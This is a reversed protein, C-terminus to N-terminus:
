WVHVHQRREHDMQAVLMRRRQVRIRGSAGYVISKNIFPFKAFAKVTIGVSLPHLENMFLHLFLSVVVVVVVVVVEGDALVDTNHQGRKISKGMGMQILIYTHLLDMGTIHYRECANYICVPM